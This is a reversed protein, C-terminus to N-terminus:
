PEIYLEVDKRLTVGFENWGIVAVYVRGPRYATLPRNGSYWGNDELSLDWELPPLPEQYMLVRVGANTGFGELSVDHVRVYLSEDRYFHTVDADGDARNSFGIFLVHRSPTSDLVGRDVDRTGPGAIEPLAPRSIPGGTHPAYEPTSSAEMASPRMESATMPATEISSSSLLGALDTETLVRNYIRIDDLRGYFYPRPNGNQDIFGAGIILDASTFLDYSGVAQRKVRTGNIFLEGVGQNRDYTVMMHHWQLPPPDAFSIVRELRDQRGDAGILHTGTGLGRWQYGHVHSWIQPGLRIPLRTTDVWSVLPLQDQYASVYFFLSVTLQDQIALSESAPVRIYNSAGDFSFSGGISGEPHFQAGHIVGDNGHRSHDRVLSTEEADFPFHLVLGDTAVGESAHCWTTLVIFAVRLSNRAGAVAPM